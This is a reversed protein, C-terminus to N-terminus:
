LMLPPSSTTERGSGLGARRPAWLGVLGIWAPWTNYASSKAGTCRGHLLSDRVHVSEADQAERMTADHSRRM